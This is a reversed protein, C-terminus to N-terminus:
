SGVDSALKANTVAARATENFRSVIAMPDSHASASLRVFRAHARSEESSAEWGRWYSVFDKDAPVEAPSNFAVLARQADLLLHFVLDANSWGLCGSPTMLDDATLSATFGGLHEYEAALADVTTGWGMMNRVVTEDQVENRM